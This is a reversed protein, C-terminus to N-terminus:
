RVSAKRAVAAARANRQRTASDAANTARGRDRRQELWAELDSRRVRVHRGIRYGPVGTGKTRQQYLTHLPLGLEEAIQELSLWEDSSLRETM